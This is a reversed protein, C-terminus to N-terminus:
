SKNENNLLIIEEYNYHGMHYDSIYQLMNQNRIYHAKQLGPLAEVSNVM